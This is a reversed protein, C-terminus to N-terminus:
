GLVPSWLQSFQSNGISSSMKLRSLKELICFSPTSRKSSHISSVPIMKFSYKIHWKWFEKGPTYEINLPKLKRKQKYKKYSHYVLIDTSKDTKNRQKCDINTEVKVKKTTKPIAKEIEWWNM